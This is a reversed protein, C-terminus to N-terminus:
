ENYWGAEALGALRTFYSDFRAGITETSWERQARQRIAARDLDGAREIGAAFDALTNCLYGTQGHAVNEVLGGWASAVVPTGCLQAEVSVGAFPELYVSPVLVCGAGGMLEARDAPGVVGLYEVDGEMVTGDSATIRGPEVSGVGQGAVLLRRGARAAALAAIDIGKRKILRGIFLVDDGGPGAPFDSTEYARPLVEDYFKVDDTPGYRGTIYNRWAWSEYVRFPAWVGSYGIGTEVHYLDTLAEAVPRQSSGMTLCLIDRPAMREYIAAVARANFTRWGPSDPDFDSMVDRKPEYDPWLNRQEDRTLLTVHETCRATNAEGAYLFTEYGADTMMSTFTRTRDTFACHSWDETTESFPMALIHLRPKM